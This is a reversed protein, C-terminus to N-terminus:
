SVSAAVPAGTGTPVLRVVYADSGGNAFFHMVGHGLPTRKDLGGFERAYESFSTIRTAKTTSGKAAWGVFLAISTAVGQITRVGSPVEEIYVGPHLLSLAM